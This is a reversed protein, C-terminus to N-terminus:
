DQKEINFNSMRGLFLDAPYWVGTPAPAPKSLYYLRAGEGDAADFNQLRLTENGLPIVVWTQNDSIRRLRMNGSQGEILEIVADFQSQDELTVSYSGEWNPGFTQGYNQRITQGTLAQYAANVNTYDNLAQLLYFSYQLGKSALNIAGMPQDRFQQATAKRDSIPITDLVTRNLPTNTKYVTKSILYYYTTTDVLISDLTFDRSLVQQPQCYAAVAFLSFTVFLFTKKM